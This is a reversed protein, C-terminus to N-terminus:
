QEYFIPILEDLMKKKEATINRNYCVMLSLKLDCKIPILRMKKVYENKVTKLERIETSVSVGKGKNLVASLVNVNSYKGAINLSGYQELFEYIALARDYGEMFILHPLQVVEEPLLETKYEPVFKCDASCLVYPKSTHLRFCSVNKYEEILDMAPEVFHNILVADVDHNVIDLYTENGRSIDPCEVNLGLQESQDYIQELQGQFFGRSCFVRFFNDIVNVNQAVTNYSKIIDEIDRMHGFILEAKEAIERAVDTVEIGRYTRVLLPIGIEDEMKHLSTSVTSPVVNLTEAAIKISNCRVVMRLYNLQELRLMDM